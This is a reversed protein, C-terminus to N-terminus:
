NTDLNLINNPILPIQANFNTNLSNVMGFRIIIQIQKFDANIVPKEIIFCAEFTSILAKQYVYM